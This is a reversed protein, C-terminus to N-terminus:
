ARQSVLPFLIIFGCVQILGQLDDLEARRNELFSTLDPILSSLVCVMLDQLQQASCPLAQAQTPLRFDGLRTAEASAVTSPATLLV